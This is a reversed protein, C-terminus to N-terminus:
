PEREKERESKRREDDRLPRLDRWGSATQPHRDDPRRHGACRQRLAQDANRQRGPSEDCVRRDRAIERQPSPKADAGSDRDVRQQGRRPEDRDRAGVVLEKAEKENVLMELAEERGLMEAGAGPVVEDREEDGPDEGPQRNEPESEARAQRSPVGFASPKEHCRNASTHAANTKRNKLADPDFSGDYMRGINAGSASTIPQSSTLSSSRVSNRSVTGSAMAPQVSASPSRAAKSRRAGANAPACGTATSNDNPPQAFAAATTAAAPLM